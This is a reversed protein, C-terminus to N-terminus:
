FRGSKILSFWDDVVSLAPPTYFALLLADASDPSRGTRKRLEDKPEVQIRGRLDHTYRPELLQAVTTDANEMESLDMLRSEAALRGVEWWLQSRLNYYTNPDSAREQVKVAIIDANHAGLDRLNRLEGVLGAGVGIADVKVKTAGTERLAALVLRSITEPRDSRERWERGARVGRRERVVTEDGGGGVDVGLEVPLMEEAHRPTGIRCAYLDSMRIISWPHDSPFEGLVKAIYLPNDEGWEIRRAEAWEVPTLVQKLREPVPEGTFNPSDFCSIKFSKWGPTGQCLRRFHSNPDDPNGIAMIRNETSTAVTEVATWLGAPIGCAEDLIVLLFRRHFGQFSSQSYDPPKRGMGVIRDGILWRDTRQVIGKLKHSDHLGRIEEWLIGHVQDQSPATSIVLTDNAPHTDIWWAALVAALFSKGVGHAAHVATHSNNAVSAAIDRQISWLHIGKDAAWRVPDENLGETEFMRGLTDYPM